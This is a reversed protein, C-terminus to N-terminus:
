PNFLLFIDLWWCYNFHMIYRISLIRWSVGITNWSFRAPFIHTINEGFGGQWTADDRVYARRKRISVGIRNLTIRGNVVYLQSRSLNFHRRLSRSPTELWRRRSRNGLGKNLRLDFYVDFSRMVQKQSPFEGTVSSNGVCLALLASFTDM